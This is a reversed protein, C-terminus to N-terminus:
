AMWNLIYQVGSASGALVGGAIILWSLVTPIGSNSAIVNIISLFMKFIHAGIGFVTGVVTGVIMCILRSFIGVDDALTANYGLMRYVQSDSWSLYTSCIFAGIVLLLLNGYLEDKDFNM